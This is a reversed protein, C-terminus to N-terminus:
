CRGKGPVGQELLACIHQWEQPTNVNALFVDEEPTCAVAQWHEAPISKRLSYNGSMMARELFAIAQVSWLSVLPHIWGRSDQLATVLAEPYKEWHEVLRKLLDPVLLPVDCSVVLCGACHEERAALLSTYLGGMPGIERTRDPILRVPIGHERAFRDALAACPEKSRVSILIQPVFGAVLGLLQELVTGRGPLQLTAKDQGMRSSRGGALLVGMLCSSSARDTGQVFDEGFNERAFLATDENM